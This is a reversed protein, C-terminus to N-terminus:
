AYRRSRHGPRAGRPLLRQSPTVLKTQTVARDQGDVELAQGDPEHVLPGHDLHRAGLLPAGQLLDDGLRPHGRLVSGSLLRLGPRLLLPLLSPPVVGQGENRWRTARSLTSRRRVRRHDLADRRLVGHDADGPAELGQGVVGRARAGGGRGVVRRHNPQLRQTVIRRPGSGPLVLRDSDSVLRYAHRVFGHAHRVFGHAHGVLWYTDGVLRYTDGVLRYPDGVLRSRGPAHVGGDVLARPRRRLVRRRMELIWRGTPREGAREDVFLGVGPRRLRGGHHGHGGRRLASRVERGRWGVVVHRAEQIGELAGPDVVREQPSRRVEPGEGAIRRRSGVGRSGIWRGGHHFLGGGTKGRRPRLRRGLVQDDARRFADLSEGVLGHGRSRDLRRLRRRRDKRHRVSGRRDAEPAVRRRLGGRANPDHHAIGHGSGCRNGTPLQDRGQGGRLWWGGGPAGLNQGVLHSRGGPEAGPRHRTRPITERDDRHLGPVGVGRRPRTGFIGRAFGM